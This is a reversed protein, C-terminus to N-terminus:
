CPRVSFLAMVTGDATVSAAREPLLRIPRSNIMRCLTDLGPVPHDLQAKEAAQVVTHKRKGGLPGEEYRASGFLPVYGLDRVKEALKASSLNAVRATAM